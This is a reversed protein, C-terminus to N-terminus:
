ATITLTVSQQAFQPPSSSDIAQLTFTSSGTATPVGIVRGGSELNVGPPLTGSVLSWSVPATGGSTTLALWGGGTTFSPTASSTISLSM